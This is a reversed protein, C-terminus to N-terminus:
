LSGFLDFNCEQSVNGLGQQHVAFSLDEVQLTHYLRSKDRLPIYIAAIAKLWPASSGSGVDLFVGVRANEFCVCVKLPSLLWWRSVLVFSILTPTSSELIKLDKGKENSLFAKTPKM